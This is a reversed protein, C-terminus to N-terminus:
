GVRRLQAVAEIAGLAVLQDPRAFFGSDPMSVCFVYYAMRGNPGPKFQVSRVVPQDGIQLVYIGDYTVSTIRLDALLVDGIQFQPANLNDRVLVHAYDGAPLPFLVSPHTEQQRKPALGTGKRPSRPCSQCNFPVPAENLIDAIEERLFKNM